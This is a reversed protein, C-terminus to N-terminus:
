QPDLHGVQGLSEQFGPDLDSPVIHGFGLCFLLHLKGDLGNGLGGVLSEELPNNGPDVSRKIAGFSLPGAENADKVDSTELDKLQVAKLLQADVVGVLLQLLQEVVRHTAGRDHHDCCYSQLASSRSKSVNQRDDNFCKCKHYRHHHDGAGRLHEDKLLLFVLPLSDLPFENVKSEVELWGDVEDFLYSWHAAVSNM